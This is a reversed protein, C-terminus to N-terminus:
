TSDPVFGSETRATYANSAFIRVVREPSPLPPLSFLEVRMQIRYRRSMVACLIMRWFREFWVAEVTKKKRPIFELGAIRLEHRQQEEGDNAM